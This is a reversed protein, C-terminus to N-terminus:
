AAQNVSGQSTNSIASSAFNMIKVIGHTTNVTGNSKGLVAFWSSGVSSWAGVGNADSVLVRNQGQNGDQIRLGGGVTNSKIDVKAQPSLVGIGLNGSTTIVIDDAAQVATVTGSSPNTTAASSAGDIHLLAKPNETNIGIQACIVASVILLILLIPIKKKM